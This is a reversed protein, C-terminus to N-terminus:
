AVMKLGETRELDIRQKIFEVLTNDKETGALFEPFINKMAMAVVRESPLIGPRITRIWSGFSLWVLQTQAMSLYQLMGQAITGAMMHLHYASMKRLVAARYKESERHLYQNGTKRKIPKMASMWFHYAYTGITYIAQKFAVEIKFRYGYTRIIEMATLSLDTSMLIKRGRVPHIVAVFRVMIGARRWILDMTRYLLTVKREGYVPSETSQMTDPNDFLSRVKIKKGYKRPAGRGKRKPRNALMYAVANIRVASILHHGAALLPHIMNRAAYYADAALYVPTEFALEQVLMALKDVLTRKDRNSVVVGEHIRCSLPIAFLSKKMFGALMAIAQCSHGFIYPPKTNSESTQHLKKVAPMKRGAKSIKIGDAICILRGKLTYLFPRFLNLVIRKWILTLREVTVAKSHFMDLLRDYCWEKLGVARVISTVGALDGRITIGACALVFWLFTRTQKFAPRLLQMNKWWIRWLRM